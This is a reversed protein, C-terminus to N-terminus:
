CTRERTFVHQVRQQVHRRLSSSRLLSNETEWALVCKTVHVKGDCWGSPSVRAAVAARQGDLGASQRKYLRLCSLFFFSHLFLVFSLFLFSSARYENETKRERKREEEKIIKGDRKEQREVWKYIRDNRKKEKDKKANPMLYPAQIECSWTRM